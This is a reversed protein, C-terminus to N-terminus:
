RVVLVSLKIRYRSFKLKKFRTMVSFYVSLPNTTANFIPYRIHIRCLWISLHTVCNKLHEGEKDIYTTYFCMVWCEHLQFVLWLLGNAGLTSVLLSSLSVLTPRWWKLSACVSCLVFLSGLVHRSLRTSYFSLIPVQGLSSSFLVFFFFFFFLFLFFFLFFFLDSNM